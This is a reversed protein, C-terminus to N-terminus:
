GAKVLCKDITNKFMNVSRAHVCDDFLSICKEKVLTFDRGRTIKGAKIIWFFILVSKEM